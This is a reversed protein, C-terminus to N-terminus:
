KNEKNWRRKGAKTRERDRERGLEENVREVVERVATIGARNTHM